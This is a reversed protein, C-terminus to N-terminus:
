RSLDNIMPFPYHHIDMNDVRYHNYAFVKPMFEDYLQAFIDTNSPRRM